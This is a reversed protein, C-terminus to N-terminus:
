LDQKKRSEMFAQFLYTNMRYGDVSSKFAIVKDVASQLGAHDWAYKGAGSAMAIVGAVAWFTQGSSYQEEIWPLAKDIVASAKEEGLSHLKRAATSLLDPIIELRCLLTKSWDNFIQM